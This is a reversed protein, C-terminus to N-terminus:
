KIQGRIADVPRGTTGITAYAAGSKVLLVLHTLEHGQLTGVLDAATIEGEALVGSFKGAIPPGPFITFVTSGLQDPTGQCIAAASPNALPVTVELRYSVTRTTADYKLTLLARPDASASTPDSVRLEASYTASVLGAAPDLTTTTVGDPLLPLTQPSAQVRSSYSVAATLVVMLGLLCVTLVLRRIQVQEARNRRRRGSARSGQRTEAHM